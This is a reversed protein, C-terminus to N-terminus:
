GFVKKVVTKPAGDKILVQRLGPLNYKATVSKNVAKKNWIILDLDITRPGSKVKIRKRELLGEIKKLISKVRRISKSSGVRCVANLFDPQKKFGAPNTKFNASFKIKKFFNKM